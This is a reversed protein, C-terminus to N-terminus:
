RAKRGPVASHVGLVSSVHVEPAHEDGSQQGPAGGAGDDLTPQQGPRHSPAVAPRLGLPVMEVVGDGDAPEKEALEDRVRQEPGQQPCHTAGGLEAEAGPREHLDAGAHHHHQHGGVEEPGRALTAEDGGDRGPHGPQHAAGGTRRVDGTGGHHVTSTGQPTVRDTIARATAEPEGTVPAM